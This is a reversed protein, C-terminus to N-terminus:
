VAVVIYFRFFLANFISFMFKIAFRIDTEFIIIMFTCKSAVVNVEDRKFYASIHNNM